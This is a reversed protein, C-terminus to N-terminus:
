FPCYRAVDKTFGSTNFRLSLARGAPYANPYSGFYGVKTQLAPLGDRAVELELGSEISPWYFIYRTQKAGIREALLVEGDPVSLRVSRARDEDNTLTICHGDTCSVQSLLLGSL